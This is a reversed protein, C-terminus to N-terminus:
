IGEIKRFSEAIKALEEESVRIKLLQIMVVYKEPVYKEIYVNKEVDPFEHNMYDCLECFMTYPVKDYRLFM